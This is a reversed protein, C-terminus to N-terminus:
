IWRASPPPCAGSYLVAVDVDSVPGPAGRAESGFLYAAVVGNPPTSFYDRLQREAASTEMRRFYGPPHPAGSLSNMRLLSERALIAPM